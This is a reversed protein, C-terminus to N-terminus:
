NLQKSEHISQQAKIQLTTRWIMLGDMQKQGKRRYWEVPFRVFTKLWYENDM